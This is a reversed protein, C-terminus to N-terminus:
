PLTANIAAFAIPDARHRGDPHLLIIKVLEVPVFVSNGQDGRNKKSEKRFSGYPFIKLLMNSNPKLSTKLNLARYRKKRLCLLVIHPDPFSCLGTEAKQGATTRRM